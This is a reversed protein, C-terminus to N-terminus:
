REEDSNEIKGGGIEVQEDIHEAEIGDNEPESKVLKGDGVEVKENKELELSTTRLRKVLLKTTMMRM